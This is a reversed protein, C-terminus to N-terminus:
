EELDRGAKFGELEDDAELEAEFEERDDFEELDRGAKFSEDDALLLIAELAGILLSLARRWPAPFIPLAGVLALVPEVMEYVDALHDINEALSPPLLTQKEGLADVDFSDMHRQLDEFTTLSQMTNQNQNM